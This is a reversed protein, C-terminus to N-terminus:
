SRKSSKAPKIVQILNDGNFFYM